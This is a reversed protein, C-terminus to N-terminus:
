FNHINRMQRNTEGAALLRRPVPRLSAFLACFSQEKCRKTLEPNKQPLRETKRM